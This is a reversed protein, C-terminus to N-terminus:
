RRLIYQLTCQVKGQDPFNFRFVHNNGLIIRSGSIYFFYYCYIYAVEVNWIICRIQGGFNAYANNKIERPVATISLLFSFCLNHLDGLMRWHTRPLLSFYFLQLNPSHSRCPPTTLPPHPPPPPGPPLHPPIPQELQHFRFSHHFYCSQNILSFISQKPWYWCGQARDVSIRKWFYLNENGNFVCRDIRTWM